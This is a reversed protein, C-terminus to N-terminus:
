SLKNGLCYEPAYGKHKTSLDMVMVWGGEFRQFLQVVMGKKLQVDRSDNSMNDQVVVYCNPPYQRPSRSQSSMSITSSSYNSNNGSNKSYLTDNGSYNTSRQGTAMTPRPTKLTMETNNLNRSNSNFKENEPNYGNSFANEKIKQNNQQYAREQNRISERIAEQTKIEKIYLYSFIFGILAFVTATSIGTILAMKNIVVGIKISEPDYNNSSLKCCSDIIEKNQCYANKLEKNVFGCQVIEENIIKFESTDMNNSNYLECENNTEARTPLNLCLNYIETLFNIRENYIQNQDFSLVVRDTESPNPYPCSDSLLFKSLSDYYDLCHEQCIPHELFNALSEENLYKQYMYYCNVTKEYRIDIEQTGNNFHAIETLPKIDDPNEYYCLGKAVLIFRTYYDVRRDPAIRFDEILYQPENSLSELKDYGMKLTNNSYQVCYESQVKIDESRVEICKVNVIALIFLIITCIM